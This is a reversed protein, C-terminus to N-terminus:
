QRFNQERMVKLADAVAIARAYSYRKYKRQTKWVYYRALCLCLWDPLAAFGLLPSAGIEYQLVQRLSISEEALNLYNAKM